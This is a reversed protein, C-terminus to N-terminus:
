GSMNRGTPIDSDLVLPFMKEVLLTAKSHKLLKSYTPHTLEPTQPIKKLGGTATASLFEFLMQELRGEFMELQGASNWSLSGCIYLMYSNRGKRIEQIFLHLVSFYNQSTKVIRRM